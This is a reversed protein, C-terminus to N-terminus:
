ATVKRRFLWVSGAALTLFAGLLAYAPNSSATDPLEGGGLTDEMPKAQDLVEQPVEITGVGNYNDITLDTKTSISVGSGESGEGPEMEMDLNMVASTLYHNEKDITIQYSVDNITTNELMDENMGEMGESEGMGQQMMAMSAELLEEGDGEYTLVYAGDKEEVSMNDVVPMAQEFQGEAMMQRMQESSDGSLKMWNEEGMKSFYGDETHYAEITENAVKTQVYFALPDLTVDAKMETMMPQSQGEGEMAGIESEIMQTISYSDLNKMAENSKQLVDEASMEAASMQLPMFFLVALAITLMSLKKLM